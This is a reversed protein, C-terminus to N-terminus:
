FSRARTCAFSFCEELLSPGSEAREGGIFLSGTYPIAAAYAPLPSPLTDSGRARAEIILQTGWLRQLDIAKGKCTFLKSSVLSVFSRDQLEDSASSFFVYRKLNYVAVEAGSRFGDPQSFSRTVQQAFFVRLAGESKIMFTTDRQDVEVVRGEVFFTLAASSEDENKSLPAPFGGVHSLYGYAFFPTEEQSSGANFL